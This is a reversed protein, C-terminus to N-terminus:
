PDTSYIVRQLTNCCVAVNQLVSFRMAVRQFVGYCVSYRVADCHLVICCVAVCAKSVTVVPTLALFSATCRVVICQLM